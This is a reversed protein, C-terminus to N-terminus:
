ILFGIRYQLEFPKGSFPVGKRSWYNILQRWGTIPYQWGVCEKPRMEVNFKIVANRKSLTAM